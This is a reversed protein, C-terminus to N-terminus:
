PQARYNIVREGDETQVILSVLDGGELRATIREFERLSSVRTGNVTNVEWGPAVRGDAPGGPAIGEVVLRTGEGRGSLVPVVTFGVRDEPADAVRLPQPRGARTAAFEDLRVVVERTDEFRRVTLRARDGPRRQLLRTTLENSTAVPEGDIALVVDGQRLGGRDAALGEQVGDIWAGEIRELGYAEADADNLDRVNVGLRPRHVVGDDMLDHAVRRVIDVPIAFGYGIFRRDGSQIAANVGIVRGELDVLPGGSNGPNIAADTQLYSELATRRGETGVSLTRGKASVIGATVTFELDLPSGLALVWDGVEANEATGLRAAPVSEGRPLELRLVAVDSDEDSGVLVAEYSKGEVLSVRIRSADAVVHHNTIVHGDDDFVFGSGRPGVTRRGRPTRETQVRVVAPMAVSAAERFAGSLERALGSRAGTPEQLPLSKHGTTAAGGEHALPSVTAADQRSGGTDCAGLAFLLPLLFAAAAPRPRHAM